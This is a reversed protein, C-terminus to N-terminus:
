ATPTSPDPSSASRPASTSAAPIQGAQRGRSLADRLRQWRPEDIRQRFHALLEPHRIRETIVTALIAIGNNDTLTHRLNNLIALADTRPHPTKAARPQAPRADIAAAHPPRSGNSRTM